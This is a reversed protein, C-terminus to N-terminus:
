TCPDLLLLLLLLLLAISDHMPCSLIHRLRVHSYRASCQAPDSLWLGHLVREDPDLLLLATVQSRTVAPLRLHGIEVGFAGAHM